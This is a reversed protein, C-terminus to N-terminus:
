VKSTPWVGKSAGSRLTSENKKQNKTVPFPTQLFILVLEYVKGFSTAMVWAALFRIVLMKTKSGDFLSFSSSIRQWGYMVVPVIGSDRGIEVILKGGEFKNRELNKGFVIAPVGLGGISTGPWIM